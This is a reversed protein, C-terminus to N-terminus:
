RKALFALSGEKEDVALLQRLLRGCELRAAGTNLVTLRVDDRGPKVVGVARWLPNRKDFFDGSWGNFTYQTNSHLKRLKKRWISRANSTGLAGLEENFDKM